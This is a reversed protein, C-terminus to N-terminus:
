ESILTLGHEEFARDAAQQFAQDHQRFAEEREAEEAKLALKEAKAESMGNRIAQRRVASYTGGDSEDMRELFYEDSPIGLLSAIENRTLKPSTKKLM